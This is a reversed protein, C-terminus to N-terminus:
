KEAEKEAIKEEKEAVEEPVKEPGEIDKVIQEKTEVPVPEKIGKVKKTKSIWRVKRRKMAQNKRCKASCLYNVSGDLKVLTVGKHQDYM